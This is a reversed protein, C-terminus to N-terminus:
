FTYQVEGYISRGAMPFDGPISAIPGPSAEYVNEDFANRVSIALELSNWVEKKRLTLDVTTYDSVPTRSDGVVRKQEGVWNVQADFHWRTIFEWESRGYIQHNPAEGVDTKTKDDESKQYSYNALLRLTNIPKYDTELETGYGTREGINQAQQQQSGTGTDVFTIYDDIEYYFINASYRWKSSLQHAFAFEFSDITEPKLDPNGLAVPNSSAFLEAISPARFARGYLLKTTISDTTAWVLALRPNTTDGFDSYHDYRVGSTLQWNDAFQWEDQAFFHYSTRDKEPLFVESTGSVDELGPKPSLDPNFNKSEKVEFIDGWYGGTGLRLIHKSFGRFAGSFDIRANEEKLEPNGILGNPYAGGFTGPPLVLINDEVEQTGRYYSVRGEVGWNPTLDNLTYTYDANFRQSAFRGSPDLAQSIGPATGMNSRGQYGARFRSNDYAVDLRTEIMDKMTNVPGPALSANTMFVSDLGTQFDQQVKEQQGDTTEYEFTFGIDFGSYSGGHEVWGAQTDFSGARAGAKTGNINSGTKTVINIVGSFADAGYLASGPGRIVEVRAISKVPMGAWVQSRNGTFMSTIPIGNILVLTQPNYSSTIGRINYKPSYGQDSRGVHLGPVTELIEDLDTAGMAIIDDETIVTAVAAAKDLPTQTGSAISTVRVHGLEELPIDWLGGDGGFPDDNALVSGSALAISFALLGPIPSFSVFPSPTRGVSPTVPKKIM